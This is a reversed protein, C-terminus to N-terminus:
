ANGPSHRRTTFPREYRFPVHLMVISTSPLKEMPVPSRCRDRCKAITCISEESPRARPYQFPTAAALWAWSSRPVRTRCPPQQTLLTALTQAQRGPVLGLWYPPKLAGGRLLDAATSTARAVGRRLLLETTPWRIATESPTSRELRRTSPATSTM